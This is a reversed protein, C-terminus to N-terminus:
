QRVPMFVTSPSYNSNFTSDVSFDGLYMTIANNSGSDCIQFYPRVMWGGWLDQMPSTSDQSLRFGSGTGISTNDVWAQVEADSTGSTSNPTVKIIYEHFQSDKPISYSVLAGAPPDTGVAGEAAEGLWFGDAGIYGTYGGNADPTHTRSAKSKQPGDGWSSGTDLRMWWRYYIPPGGVLEFSYAPPDDILDVGAPQNNADSCNSNAALEIKWCMQGHICPSSVLTTNGYRTPTSSPLSGMETPKADTLDWAFYNVAEVPLAILLLLYLLKRM